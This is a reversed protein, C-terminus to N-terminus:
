VRRKGRGRGYARYLGFIKCVPCGALPLGIAFNDYILLYLVIGHM